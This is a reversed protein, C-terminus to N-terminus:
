VRLFVNSSLTCDLASDRVYVTYYGHALGSFTQSSQYISDDLSYEIPSTGGLTVVNIVGNSQLCSTPQITDISLIQLTSNSLVSFSGEVTCGNNDVVTLSYTGMCANTVTHTTASHSWVYMYPPVGGSVLPSILGNCNGLCDTNTITASVSIVDPLDSSCVDSSWDR